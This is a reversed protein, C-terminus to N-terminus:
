TTCALSTLSNRGSETSYALLRTLVSAQIGPWEGTFSRRSSAPIGMTFTGGKILVMDILVSNQQAYVGGAATLLFLVVLKEYLM